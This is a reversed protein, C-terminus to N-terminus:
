ARSIKFTAFSRAKDEVRNNDTDFDMEVSKLYENFRTISAKARKAFIGQEDLNQRECIQYLAYYASAQKLATWNLVRSLDYGGTGAIGAPRNIQRTDIFTNSWVLSKYDATIFEKLKNFANLHFQAFGSDADYDSVTELNAMPLDRDKSFFCYVQINTDDNQYQAFNVSGGINSDNEEVLTALGLVASSASAVPQTKASDKYLQLTYIGYESREFTGYLIGDDTNLTEQKTSLGTLMLNSLQQFKASTGPVLVSEYIIAETM